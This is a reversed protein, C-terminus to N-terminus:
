IWCRVPIRTETQDPKEPGDGCFGVAMFDAEAQRLDAGLHRVGLAIQLSYALTRQHQNRPDLQGAVAFGVQADDHAAGALGDWAGSRAVPGFAGGCGATFVLALIIENCGGLFGILCGTPVVAPFSAAVCLIGAVM